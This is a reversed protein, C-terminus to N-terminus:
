PQHAKEDKAIREGLICKNGVLFWGGGVRWYAFFGFGVGV